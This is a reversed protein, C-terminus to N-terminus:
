FIDDYYGACKSFLYLVHSLSQSSIHTLYSLILYLDRPISLILLLSLILSHPLLTPSLLFLSLTLRYDCLCSHCHCQRSITIHPHDPYTRIMSRNESLKKECHVHHPWQPHINYQFLLSNYTCAIMIHSLTPAMTQKGSTSAHLKTMRAVTPTQQPDSLYSLSRERDPPTTPPNDSM